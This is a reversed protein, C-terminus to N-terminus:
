RKRKRSRVVSGTEDTMHKELMDEIGSLQENFNRSFGLGEHGVFRVSVLDKVRVMRLQNLGHYITDIASDGFFQDISFHREVVLEMKVDLSHIGPHAALFKFTRDKEKCWFFDWIYM